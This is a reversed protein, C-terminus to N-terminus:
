ALMIDELRSFCLLYLAKWVFDWKFYSTSGIYGFSIPSGFFSFCVIYCLLM